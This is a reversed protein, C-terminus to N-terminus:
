LGRPLSAREATTNWLVAGTTPDLCATLGNNALPLGRRRRAASDFGFFVSYFLRDGSLALGCDNGGRGFESFDKEWVLKAPALFANVYEEKM